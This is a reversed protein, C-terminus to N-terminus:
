SDDERSERGKGKSSGELPAFIDGVSSDFEHGDINSFAVERGYTVKQMGIKLIQYKCTILEDQSPM